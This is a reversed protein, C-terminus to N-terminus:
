NVCSKFYEEVIRLLVDARKIHNRLVDWHKRRRRVPGGQGKGRATSAGLSFHTTSQAKGQCTSGAGKRLFM